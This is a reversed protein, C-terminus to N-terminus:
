PFELSFVATGPASTGGTGSAASTSASGARRFVLFRMFGLLSADKARTSEKFVSAQTLISRLSESDLANLDLFHRGSKM